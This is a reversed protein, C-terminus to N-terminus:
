PAGPWPTYGDTVVIIVDAQPYQRASEVMIAGMDTGGGGVLSVHGDGFARTAAAAHTDGTVVRVGDQSPLAKVVDRVVGLALSLDREGMSGSTDIIILPRPVPRINAPLRLGRPPTRRNPMKWTTCGFGKVCNMSYKVESMIAKRPDFKPKLVMRAERALDGPVHGAKRSAEVIDHAVTRNLRGLEYEEMGSPTDGPDDKDGSSSPPAGHEWERTHGGAGSGHDGEGGPMCRACAKTSLQGNNKMEVLRNYYQETSEGPTFGFQKIDMSGEPLNGGAGRITQNISLDGAVNWLALQWGEPKEGVHVMCRQHHRLFVHLCEHVLVWASTDMDWDDLVKPNYYIRFWKDVGMLPVKDTEVLTSSLILKSLYRCLVTSRLRATRIDYKM